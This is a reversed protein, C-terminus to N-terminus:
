LMKCRLFCGLFAKERWGGGMKLVQGGAWGSVMTSFLVQMARVPQPTFVACINIMIPFLDIVIMTQATMYIYKPFPYFIRCHYVICSM